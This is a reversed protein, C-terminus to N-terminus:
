IGIKKYDIIYYYWITFKAAWLVLLIQHIVKYEKIIPIIKSYPFRDNIM